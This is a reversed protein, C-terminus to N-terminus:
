WVKIYNGLDLNKLKEFKAPVYSAQWCGASFATLFKSYKSTARTARQDDKNGANNQHAQCELSWIGLWWGVRRATFSRSVKSSSCLPRFDSFHIYSLPRNSGCGTHPKELNCKKLSKTESSHSSDVKAFCGRAQGLLVTSASWVPAFNVLKWKFHKSM